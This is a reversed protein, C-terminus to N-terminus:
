KNNLYKAVIKEATTRITAAMGSEVRKWGAAMWNHRSKIQPALWTLHAYWPDKSIEKNRKAVVGVWVTYPRPKRASMLQISQILTGARRTYYEKKWKGRYRKVKRDKWDIPAESKISQVAPRVATSIIRKLAPEKFENSLQKIQEITTDFGFETAKIQM